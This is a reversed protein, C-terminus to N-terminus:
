FKTKNLRTKNLINLVNIENIYAIIQKIKYMKITYIINFNM